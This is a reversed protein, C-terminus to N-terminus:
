RDLSAMVALFPLFGIEHMQQNGVESLSAFIEQIRESM